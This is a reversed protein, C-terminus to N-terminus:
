KFFSILLNNEGDLESQSYIMAENEMLAWELLGSLLSQSNVDYWLSM